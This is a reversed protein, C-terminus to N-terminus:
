ELGFWAIPIRLWGNGRRNISLPLACTLSPRTLAFFLSIWNGNCTLTLDSIHTSDSPADAPAPLSQVGAEALPHRESPGTRTPLPLDGSSFFPRGSGHLQDANM